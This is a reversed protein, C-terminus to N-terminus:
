IEINEKAYGNLKHKKAFEELLDISKEGTENTSMDDKIEIMAGQIFYKKGIGPKGNENLQPSMDEWARIEDANAVGESRLFRYFETQTKTDGRLLSKLNFKVYEPSESLENKSPFLKNSIEQEMNVIIPRLAYKVHIINQQEVVNYNSKEHRSLMAPQIRWLGAIYEDTMNMQAILETAEPSMMLAKYDLDGTLVPTGAINDGSVQANWIKQNEARINQDTGKQFLIGPPKNGVSRSAYKQQKTKLGITKANYEIKNVGIPDGVVMSRYHFMDYSPIVVKNDVIYFLEGDVIEVQVLWPKIRILKSAYGKSDREAIYAYSNGWGEGVFIMGYWFHYANEWQNPKLNLLRHITGKLVEKGESTDKRWQKSITAIDQSLLNLCNFVTNLRTSTESTVVEGSDEEKGGGLFDWLKRWGNTGFNFTQGKLVTLAVKVRQIISPKSM